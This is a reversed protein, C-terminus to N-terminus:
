IINAETATLFGLMAEFLCNISAVLEGDKNPMCKTQETQWAEEMDKYYTRLWNKIVLLLQHKSYEEPFNVLASPYRRREANTDTKRYCPQKRLSEDWDILAFQNGMQASVGLLINGEHIDGHVLDTMQQFLLTRQILAKVERAFNTWSLQGTFPKGCDRMVLMNCHDKAFSDFPYQSMWQKAASKQHTNWQNWKNRIMSRTADIAIKATDWYVGFAAPSKVKLYWSNSRGSDTTFQADVNSNGLVMATSLNDCHIVLSGTQTPVIEWPPEGNSPSSLADPLLMCGPSYKDLATAEKWPNPLKRSSHLLFIALEDTSNTRYEYLNFKAGIPGSHPKELLLFAVEFTNKDNCFISFGLAKSVARCQMARFWWLQGYLYSACEMIERCVDSTRTVHGEILVGDCYIPLSGDSRSPSPNGRIDDSWPFIQTDPLKRDGQVKAVYKEFLKEHSEVCRGGGLCRIHHKDDLKSIKTDIWNRISSRVCKKIRLRPIIVTEGIVARALLSIGLKEEFKERSMLVRNISLNLLSAAEQEHEGHCIM